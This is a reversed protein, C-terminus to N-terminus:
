RARAPSTIRRPSSRPLASSPFDGTDLTDIAFAVFGQSAVLEAM